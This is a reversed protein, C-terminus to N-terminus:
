ALPRMRIRGPEIVSFHGLWDSRGGLLEALRAGADPSKPTPMRVLVVGADKPLPTKAALEGFDKDFTILIRDDRAAWGLVKADELGPCKTGVCLVDHGANVLAEVATQPVNEDVLFRM